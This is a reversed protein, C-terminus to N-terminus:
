DWNQQRFAGAAVLRQIAASSNVPTRRLYRRPLTAINLSDAVPRDGDVIVPVRDAGAFAIKPKDYYRVSHNEFELEKTRWRWKPPALL